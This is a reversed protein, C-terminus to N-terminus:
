NLVLSNLQRSCVRNLSVPTLIKKKV